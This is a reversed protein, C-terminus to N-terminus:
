LNDLIIGEQEIEFQSRVLHSDLIVQGTSLQQTVIVSEYQDFDGDRVAIKSIRVRSARKEEPTQNIGFWIDAHAMKRIDESANTQTVNDREFGARNSQSATVVCCHLSDTMGKLAEWISNIAERGTERSDEKGIIDAYDIVVLDPVFGENEELAQIDSRIRTVNATKTPYKIVRIKSGFQKAVASIKKVAKGQKLEERKTITFWTEPQFWKSGRCYTCPRYKLGREFHKPKKGMDDLLRTKNKREPKECTNEQNLKCDFVPMIYEKTEDAMATIRKYLRKYVRHKDMELSIVLTRKRSLVGNIAIELLFWTKGRKVPALFSVLWNRQFYGIFKGIDGPLKFLIDKQSNEDQFWNKIVSEEFPNEWGIFATNAKKYRQLITEAEEVKGVELLASAKETSLRISRERFYNRAKDSLYEENFESLEYDESLKTLLNAVAEREDDNSINQKETEYIDQIHKGPAKKYKHFYSKCWMAVRAIFDVVFIEKNILPSFDRCFTDSVILATLIKEETQSEITSKRLRM